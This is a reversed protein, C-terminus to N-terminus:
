FDLMLCDTKSNAAVKKFASILCCIAIGIIQQKIETGIALISM